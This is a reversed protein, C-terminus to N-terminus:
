KNDFLNVTVVIDTDPIVYTIEAPRKKEQYFKRVIVETNKIDM